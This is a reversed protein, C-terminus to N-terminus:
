GATPSSRRGSWNTTAWSACRRRDERPNLDAVVEPGLRFFDNIHTGVDGFDFRNDCALGDLAAARRQLGADPDPEVV